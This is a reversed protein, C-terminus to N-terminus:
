SRYWTRFRRLPRTAKEVLTKVPPKVYNIGEQVKEKMAESVASIANRSYPEVHLLDYFEKAERYLASGHERGVDGYMIDLPGHLGRVRQVQKYLPLERIWREKERKTLGPTHNIAEIQLELGEQEAETLPKYKQSSTKFAGYLQRGMKAPYLVAVDIAKLPRKASKDYKVMGLGVMVTGVVLMTLFLLEFSM